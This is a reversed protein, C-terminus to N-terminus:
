AGRLSTLILFVFVVVAVAMGLRWQSFPGQSVTVHEDRDWTTLHFIKVRQYAVLLCLINVVPLMMGLGRFWVYFSRRFASGIDLRERRGQQLRIKLLLKGPTTGWAYLLVAEIPIWTLFEYPVMWEFRGVPAVGGFLRHLLWLLGLWLAYDFFRALLRHWPVAPSPEDYVKRRSPDVWIESPEVVKM